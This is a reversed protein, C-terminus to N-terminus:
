SHNHKLREKMRQRAKSSLVDESSISGSETLSDAMMKHITNLQKEYRACLECGMLHLRVRVRDMLPLKHDMSESIKHSVVECTPTLFNMLPMLLKILFKPMKAM